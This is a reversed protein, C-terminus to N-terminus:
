RPLQAEEWADACARQLSVVLMENMARPPRKMPAGVAWQVARLTNRYSKEPPSWPIHRYRNAVDYANDACWQQAAMDLGAVPRFDPAARNSGAVLIALAMVAVVATRM